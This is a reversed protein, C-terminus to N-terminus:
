EPIILGTLHCWEIQENTLQIRQLQTAEFDDPLPNGSNNISCTEPICGIYVRGQPLDEFVLAKFQQDHNFVISRHGFQRTFFEVRKPPQHLFSQGQPIQNNQHQQMIQQGQIQNAQNPDLLSLQQIGSIVEQNQQGNQIPVQGQIQAYQSNQPGQPYQNNQLQNNQQSHNPDIGQQQPHQGNQFSQVQQSNQPQVTPLQFSQGVPNGNQLQNIPQSSSLPNSLQGPQQGPLANSYATQLSHGIPAGFSQSIPQQPNQVNLYPTQQHQINSSQGNIPFSQGNMQQGNNFGPQQGNMQQGNPQGSVPNNQSYSQQQNQPNQNYPQQLNQQNQGGQLQQGQISGNPQFTNLQPQQGQNNQSSTSQATQGYTPGQTSQYGTSNQNQLTQNFNPTQNIFSPTNGGMPKFVGNNPAQQQFNFSPLAGVGNQAGPAPAAGGVKDAHASCFQSGTKAKTGCASGKRPGGKLIFSCGGSSCPQAMPTQLPNFSNQQGYPAPQQGFSQQNSPQNMSSTKMEEKFKDLIGAAYLIVQEQPVQNTKLTELVLVSFAIALEKSSSSM